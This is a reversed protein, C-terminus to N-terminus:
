RTDNRNVVSFMVEVFAAIKMASAMPVAIDCSIVNNHTLLTCYSTQPKTAYNSSQVHGGGPLALHPHHLYVRFSLRLFVSSTRTSRPRTVRGKNSMQAAQSSKCHTVIVASFCPLRKFTSVETASCNCPFVLFRSNSVM